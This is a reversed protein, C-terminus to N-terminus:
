KIQCRSLYDRVENLDPLRNYDPEIGNGNIDRHNPTVYKGVTVVIGSGDHLEFVSQILGKGFTREGVLVAKCNDHLASAVIESASATRNNVLLM